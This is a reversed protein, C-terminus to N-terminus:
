NVKQLITLNYGGRDDTITAVLISKDSSLYGHFTANGPISVVGNSTISFTEPNNLTNSGSSEEIDSFIGSGSEDITLNGHIWTAWGAFSNNSTVLSHMHWTGVLDVLNYSTGSIIKQGIAMTFGGDNNTMTAVTMRKDSSLIGHYTNNASDIIVGNATFSVLVSDHSTNAGPSAAVSSFQGKGNNDFTLLAHAWGSWSTFNDQNGDTLFHIQWSGQLDPTSHIVTPNFKQAVSLNYGGSGDNMTAILTNKDRSLFGHYSPNGKMLITNDTISEIQSSTNGAFGGPSTEANSFSINGINDIDLQAHLWGQWSWGGVRNVVLSHTQWTGEIVTTDLPPPTELDEKCSCVCSLVIFAMVLQVHQHFLRFNSDPKQAYISAM